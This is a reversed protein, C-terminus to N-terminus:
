SRLVAELPDSKPVQVFQELTHKYIFYDKGSASASGKVKALGKAVIGKGKQKGINPDELTINRFYLALPM